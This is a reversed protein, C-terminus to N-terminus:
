ITISSPPGEATRLQYDPSAVDLGGVNRESENRLCNTGNYTAM